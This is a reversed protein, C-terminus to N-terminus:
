RRKGYPNAKRGMSLIKVPDFTKQPKRMEAEIQRSVWLNYSLSSYRDKRAGSKEKVRVLGDKADYDLTILENVLLGTHTYPALLRSKDEDPLKSYGKIESLEEDASYESMLLRVKGQTIAERLGIACDSNFKATQNNIAWIVKPANAILCRAAIEENNCCSLAEYTEGTDPDYMDKMLSELVGFGVGKGDIVLDTCEFDNFMRRVMLALQDTLLGEHNETYVINNVYRESSGPLQTLQNIFISTADNRKGKMLAIDVSLIRKENETRPQVRIRRDNLKDALSPPYMPYKIKRAKSISDYSYLSGDNDSFWVCGMEINFGLESFDAESMEDEIASRMLLGEKISLQYPLGCVFYNREERLMNAAYSKLKEYSWHSTFWASSLFIEKNREELHAYEPKSLYRPQRPATLFKRLVKDIIVKDVMRFEDVVLINARNSRSSDSSTVVVIKSGNHFEVFAGGQNVVYDSIEHWLATSNGLLPDGKIKDIIEIAQKRAKSALCIKTGPYLICRVVCFIAILTSKGQGRAAIYMFHTCVNMMFLLIKQFLKLRIMLYESCFRHPNARFYATKRAVTKMIRESQEREIDRDTQVVKPKTALYIM